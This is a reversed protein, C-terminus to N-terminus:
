IDCMQTWTFVQEPPTYVKHHKREKAVFGMLKIFYPKGFEVCLQQKWSFGADSCPEAKIRVLQEVSLPSSPPTAQEDQGVRAKKAPSAQWSDSDRTLSWPRTRRSSRLSLVLGLPGFVGM